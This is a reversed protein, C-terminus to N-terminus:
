RMRLFRDDRLSSLHRSPDAALMTAAERNSVSRECARACSRVM